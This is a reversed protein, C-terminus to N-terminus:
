EVYNHDEMDLNLVIPVLGICCVIVIAVPLFLYGIYKM